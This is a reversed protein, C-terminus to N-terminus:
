RKGLGSCVRDRFCQGKQNTMFRACSDFGRSNFALMALGLGGGPGGRGGQGVGGGDGTFATMKAPARWSSPRSVKKVRRGPKEDIRGRVWEAAKGMTELDTFEM